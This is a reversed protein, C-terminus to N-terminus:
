GDNVGLERRLKTLGREMHNRLTRIRCNMLGAAEALSYGYGHVLLVATRQRMPLAAMARELAPEMSPEILVPRDAVAGDATWRRHRTAGRVASQGVRWLYGVANEMEEVREFHEWAWSLAHAAADSGLEPGYAAVLARRLRQEVEACFSTFRAARTALARDEEGTTRVGVGTCLGGVASRAVVTTPRRAM